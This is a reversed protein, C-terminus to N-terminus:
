ASRQAQNMYFCKMAAQANERKTLNPNDEEAGGFCACRREQHAVSGVISRLGCEVHMAQLFNRHQEDARVPEACWSCPHCKRSFAIM